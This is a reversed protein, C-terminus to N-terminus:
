KAPKKNKYHARISAGLWDYFFAIGVYMVFNIAWIKLGAEPQDTWANYVYILLTILAGALISGMLRHYWRIPRNKILRTM